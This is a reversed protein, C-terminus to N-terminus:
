DIGEIRSDLKTSDLAERQLDIYLFYAPVVYINHQM